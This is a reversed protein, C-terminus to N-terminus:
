NPSNTVIKTLMEPKNIILNPSVGAQIFDNKSCPGSAVAIFHFGFEKTVKQDVLTDGAYAIDTKQVNLEQLIKWVPKFVRPDPKLFPTDSATQVFSFIDPSIKAEALRAKFKEGERNTVVGLSIGQKCISQLTKSLNPFPPYHLSPFEELYAKCFRKVDNPWFYPVFERSWHKGWVKNIEELSPVKLGLKGALQQHALSSPMYSNILVGDADLLLWKIKLKTNTLM